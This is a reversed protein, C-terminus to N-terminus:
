AAANAPEKLESAKGWMDLLRNRVDGATYTTRDKCECMWQEIEAILENVKEDM